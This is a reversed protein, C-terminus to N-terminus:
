SITQQKEPSELETKAELNGFHQKLDVNLRGELFVAVRRPANVQQDVDNSVRM